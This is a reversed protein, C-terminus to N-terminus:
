YGPVHVVYKNTLVVGVFAVASVGLVRVGTRMLQSSTGGIIAGGVTMLAGVPMGFFGTVGILKLVKTANDGSSGPAPHFITQDPGSAPTGHVISRYPNAM